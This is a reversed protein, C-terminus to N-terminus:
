SKAKELGGFNIVTTQRTDLTLTTKINESREGRGELISRSLSPLPDQECNGRMREDRERPLVITAHTSVQM